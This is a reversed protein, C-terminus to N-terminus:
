PGYWGSCAVLRDGPRSLRNFSLTGAWFRGAPDCKGDNFRNQPLHEEPNSWLNVQGTHPDFAAFGHHLVLMMGGCARPVVTGIMQGVDFVRDSGDAPNFIHLRGPEIDIWYLREGRTRWIAGEGLTAKADLVLEADM